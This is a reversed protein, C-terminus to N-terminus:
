ETSPVTPNWSANWIADIDNNTMAEPAQSSSGSGSSASENGLVTWTYTYNPSTGTRETCVYENYDAETGTPLNTRHGLVVDGVKYASTHGTVSPFNNDGFAVSAEGAFKLPSTPLDLNQSIVSALSAPDVAVEITPMGVTGSLSVTVGNNTSILNSNDPYNPATTDVALEDTTQAYGSLDEGAVQATLQKGNMSFVVNKPNAPTAGTAITIVGDQGGFTSVGATGGSGSTLIQAELSGNNFGIKYIDVTENTEDVVAVIQGAYAVPNSSCYTQLDGLSSFVESIDLPGKDQRKYSVPLINAGALKSNYDYNM